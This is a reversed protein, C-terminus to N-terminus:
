AQEPSVIVRLSRASHVVLGEEVLLNRSGNFCLKAPASTTQLLTFSWCIVLVSVVFLGLAGVCCVKWCKETTVNVCEVCEVVYTSFSLRVLSLELSVIVRLARASHFM